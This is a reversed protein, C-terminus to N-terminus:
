VAVPGLVCAVRQALDGLHHLVCLTRRGLDAAEGEVPQAPHGALGVRLVAGGAVDEVSVRAAAGGIAVHHLAGVGVAVYGAVGIVEGVADDGGGIGAAGVGRVRGLLMKDELDGGHVAAAHRVGGAAEGFGVGARGGALDGVETEPVVCEAVGASGPFGRGA